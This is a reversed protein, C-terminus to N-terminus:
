FDFDGDIRWLRGVSNYFRGYNPSLSYEQVDRPNSYNLVNLISLGARFQIRHKRYTFDIPYQFKTDLGVFTRFRGATNRQGIYNWDQNLKSFPFGTHVDLIPIFDLKHPLGIVGWFLGRDPADTPMIGFQNARILPYPFNGFFQNYDNLEGRAKSRTYSAYLTSREGTKWRLLALFEQYRQHGDNLLQLQASGPLEKPDLYLDRYGERQEYGLRLLLNSRLERDFQLSWGLSYPVHLQGSSTAIVHSFPLPGDLITTGDNAYRTITQAPFKEFVAANIPIKDFFVGFGGRIATRNDNTPTFVFGIRPAVDALEASLSDSDVRVGLDLSLRPHVQWNDQFFFTLENKIASPSASNAYTIRSSLTQDERLVTV